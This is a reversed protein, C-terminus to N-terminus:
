LKKEIRYSFGDMGQEEVFECCDNYSGTYVEDNYVLDIVSWSKERNTDLNAM